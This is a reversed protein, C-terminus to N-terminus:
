LRNHQIGQARITALALEEDARKKKGDERIGGPGYLNRHLKKQGEITVRPKSGVHVSFSQRSKM